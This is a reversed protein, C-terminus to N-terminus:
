FGSGVFSTREWAQGKGWASAWFARGVQDVQARGRAEPSPESMVEGLFANGVEGALTHSDGRLGVAALAM